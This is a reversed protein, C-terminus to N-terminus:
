ELAATFEQSTLKNDKNTDFLQLIRGIFPNGTCPCTAVCSNCAHTHLDVRCQAPTLLAVPEPGEGGLEVMQQFCAIEVTGQPTTCRLTHLAPLSDTLAPVPHTGAREKAQEYYSCM